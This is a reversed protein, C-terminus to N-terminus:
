IHIRNVRMFLRYCTIRQLRQALDGAQRQEARGAIMSPSQRSESNFSEMGVIDGFYQILVADGNAGSVM